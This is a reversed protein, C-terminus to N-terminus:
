TQSVRELNQGSVARWRGHLDCIRSSRGHEILHKLIQGWSVQTGMGVHVFAAAEEPTAETVCRVRRKLRHYPGIDASNLYIHIPHFNFVKLGEGRGFLPSLEWCPDGSEMEFDDEWVYPVRLLTRGPRHYEIFEVAKARPLFLSVDTEIPTERMVTDLLPTSQMLAHSRMSTAHPVLAMCHRLVVEPTEGHTSGPLFNPHIGLEFLDPYRRLALIAPSTHTVFWTARVRHALLREAVFNIACDPAWDVDLTLVIENM